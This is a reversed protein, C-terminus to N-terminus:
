PCRAPATYSAGVFCHGPFAGANTTQNVV